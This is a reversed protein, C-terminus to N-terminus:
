ARTCARLHDLILSQIMPDDSRRERHAEHLWAPLRALVAPVREAAVRQDVGWYLVCALLEPDGAFPRAAPAAVASPDM